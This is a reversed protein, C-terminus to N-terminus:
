VLTPVLDSEEVWRRMDSEHCLDVSNKARASMMTFTFQSGKHETSEVWIEGGHAKVLEQATAPAPGSLHLCLARLM